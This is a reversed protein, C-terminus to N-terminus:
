RTSYTPDKIAVSKGPTILNRFEQMALSTETELAKRSHILQMMALEINPQGYNRHERYRKSNSYSGTEQGM